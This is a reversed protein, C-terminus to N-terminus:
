FVRNKRAIESHHDALRQHEAQGTLRAARNLTQAKDHSGNWVADFHQLFHRGTTSSSKALATTSLYFQVISKSDNTPKAAFLPALSKCKSDPRGAATRTRPAKFVVPSGSGAFNSSSIARCVM